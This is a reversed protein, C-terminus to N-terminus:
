VGVNCVCACACACVLRVCVCVRSRHLFNYTGAHRQGVPCRLLPRANHRRWLLGMRDLSPDEPGAGGLSCVHFVRALALDPVGSFLILSPHACAGICDVYVTPPLGDENEDDDEAEEEDDALM